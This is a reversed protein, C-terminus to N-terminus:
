ISRLHQLQDRFMAVSMISIKGKGKDNIERAKKAKGSTSHIDTCVLITTKSSVGSVIEGGLDEINNEMEVDRFGTMCIKQGMLPGSSKIAQGKYTIVDCTAKQFTSFKNIGNMVKEATIDSFSDANSVQSFTWTKYDDGIQEILKKFKRKGVGRGFFPVSGMVDSLPVQDLKTNKGHFAKIGNVGLVQSLKVMSANVLEDCTTVGAEYLARVSGEKLHPLELSSCFDLLQQIEVEDNMTVLVLDIETDNWECVETPMKAISPTVVHEIFPIVDGSRTIRVKAGPGIGNNKIFSANFGTAHRITVGALEFPELVVRPKLYGHKSANWEVDVVTAIFQNTADAVKYKITSRPNTGAEVGNNMENRKKARNVDIVIGDIAYDISARRTNIYDALYQDTLERGKVKSYFPVQFGANSLVELEDEKDGDFGLIQYAIVDIHDYIFNERESSNMIGAMMNRANKYISGDSKFVKQQLLTFNTETMEVEARITGSMTQPVHQMKRFHRSVDAGEIGNGRSYAKQFNSSKDFVSMLSTGDMKDTIILFEEELNHEKIFGTIEGIQEQNLSPMPYPLKEKGGRTESGIGILYENTPDACEVFRRIADYKVDPFEVTGDAIGNFYVDDLYVLAEIIEDITYDDFSDSQLLANLRQQLSNSM